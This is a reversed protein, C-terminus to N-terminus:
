TLAVQPTWGDPADEFIDCSQFFSSLVATQARYVPGTAPRSGGLFTRLGLLIEEPDDWNERLEKYERHFSAAVEDREMADIRDSYYSDIVDSHKMGDRLEAQTEPTLASYVLKFASIPGLNPPDNDTIRSKALIKLLESMEDLGIGIAHNLPLQRGLVQEVDYIDCRGLMDRLQRTGILEFRTQDHQSRLEALRSAVDPHVGRSDNHVFVFTSFQGSRQRFASEVDGNLKKITASSSPVEPAYCAYLKKGSLSLGDSGKDGLKGHTRVDVFTPDCLSMIDHFLSEFAAGTREHMVSWLVPRLAMREDFDM